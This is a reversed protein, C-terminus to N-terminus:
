TIKRLIIKDGQKKNFYAAANGQNVAIELYGHSGVLALPEGEKCFGYSKQFSLRKEQIELVDGPKFEVAKSPINTVINGFSDIFIISGQLSGDRRKGEGFDLDVFDFIQRGVDGIKLGRSIRAGVPAFIDRGHFTSSVSSLFLDTNTLEYVKFEGISRAAPILLGNDPGIFYHTGSDVSKAMVAISRRETGVGPDVVAVHVTGSPFYRACSMLMFAGARVDQRPVSHSIDVIGAEPAIGLIVGKMSAPYVDGFDSLLTIVM